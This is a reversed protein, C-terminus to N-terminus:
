ICGELFILEETAYGLEDAYLVIDDVAGQNPNKNRSLIWLFDEQSSGVLAYQYYDDVYLIRYDSKLIPFFQVKLIGVEETTYAKGLISKTDGNPYQCYNYVDVYDLEGDADLVPTYTASVCSCEEEFSHDFRAVEFWTGYYQEINVDQQVPYGVDQGFFVGYLLAMIVIVIAAIAIIIERSMNEGMHYGM